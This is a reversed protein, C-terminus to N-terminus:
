SEDGNAPPGIKVKKAFKAAKGKRVKRNFAKAGPLHAFFNWYLSKLENV